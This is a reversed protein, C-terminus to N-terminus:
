PGNYHVRGLGSIDYGGLEAARQTLAPATAFALLKQMPEDFYDRRWIAIDYREEALPLFDLRLQRAAAEIAFGAEAKGDAVAVAV